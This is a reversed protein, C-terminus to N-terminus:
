KHKRLQWESSDPAAGKANADKFARVLNIPLKIYGIVLLSILAWRTIEAPSTEWATVNAITM